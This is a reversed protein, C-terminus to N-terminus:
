RQPAPDPVVMSLRLGQPKAPEFSWEADYLDLIDRVIALGLGSGPITEDLRRGREGIQGLEAEPIGPGDDEVSLICREGDRKGQIRVTGTSWKRANDLVNGLIEDLDVPDMAIEADPDVEAIWTIDTAGPLREFVALMKAVAPELATREGALSRGRARARALEREIGKTMREVHESIRGASETEGRDRLRRAEASLVSLPTKLGHALDAARARSREVMADRGELLQNLADILGQVEVPFQGTLRSEAGSRMADLSDRLRKLPRLGFYIQLASVLMLFLALALLLRLLDDEFEGKARQLGERDMAVAMRLTTSQWRPGVIVAREAVILAGDAFAVRDHRVLEGPRATRPPLVIRDEWLSTSTILQPDEGGEQEIQWYFGGFLQGFRDDGPEFRLEIQGEADIEVARTLQDLSPEIEAFYRESIQQEFLRTLLVACFLLASGIAAGALALARLTLSAGPRASM